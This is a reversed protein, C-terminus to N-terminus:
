LIMSTSNALVIRQENAPIHAGFMNAREVVTAWHSSPSHSQSTSGSFYQEVHMFWQQEFM